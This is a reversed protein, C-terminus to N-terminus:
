SNRRIAGSVYYVMFLPLYNKIIVLSPYIERCGRWREVLGYGFGTGFVASEVAFWDNSIFNCRYGLGLTGPCKPLLNVPKIWIEEESIGGVGACIGSFIGGGCVSPAFILFVTQCCFVDAAVGARLLNAIVAM